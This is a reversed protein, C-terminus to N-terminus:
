AVIILAYRAPEPLPLTDTSTPSNPRENSKVPQLRRSELRQMDVSIDPLPTSPRKGRQVEVPQSLAKVLIPVPQEVNVASPSESLTLAEPKPSQTPTLEEHEM